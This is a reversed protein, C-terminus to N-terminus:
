SVCLVDLLAANRGRGDTVFYRAGAYGESRCFADASRQACANTVSGSLCAPAPRGDFYPNPYFASTQGRLSQGYGGGYPPYPTHGGWDNLPRASSIRRSMGIANLDWVDDEVEECWGAYSADVCVLWRGRAVLSQATDNFGLSSFNPTADSLEFRQGRLNTQSFLTLGAYGGHPPQGGWGGGDSWGVRRVSSIARNMGIRRLDPEDRELRVCGGRYEADVCVEWPQGSLLRASMAADNFRQNMLNHDDATFLVSRGTYNRGEFLELAAGVGYTQATAPGALLATVAAVVLGLRGIKSRVPANPGAAIAM